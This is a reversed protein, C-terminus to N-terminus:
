RKPHIEENQGSAQVNSTQNKTLAKLTIQETKTTRELVSREQRKLILCLRENNGKKIPVQKSAALSIAKAKRPYSMVKKDNKQNTSAKIAGTMSGAQYSVHNRQNVNTSSSALVKKKKDRTSQCKNKITGIM